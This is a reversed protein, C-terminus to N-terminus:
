GMPHASALHETKAQEAEERTDYHGLLDHEPLTCRATWHMVSLDHMDPIEGIIVDRDGRASPGDGDSAAGQEGASPPAEEVATTREDGPISVDLAQTGSVDPHSPTTPITM